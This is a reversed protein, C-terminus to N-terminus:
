NPQENLFVEKCYDTVAEYAFDIADCELTHEPAEYRGQKLLQYCHRYEHALTVMANFLSRDKIAIHAEGRSNKFTHAIGYGGKGGYIRQPIHQRNHLHLSVPLAIAYQTSLREWLKNLHFEKESNKLDKNRYVEHMRPDRQVQHLYENTYKRQYSM